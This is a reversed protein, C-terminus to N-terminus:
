HPLLNLSNRSIYVMIYTSNVYGLFIPIHGSGAGTVIAVKGEAPGDARVLARRGDQARKLHNPHALIIGEIPEDVVDLPDNILKKM